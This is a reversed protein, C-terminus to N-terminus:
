HTAALPERVNGATQWISVIETTPVVPGYFVQFVRECATQEDATAAGTADSLLVSYYGEVFGHRATAEVCVNSAFGAYVCTRIGLSRLIVDLNTDQFGDYCPKVVVREDPEPPLLQDYFEAGWTGERVAIKEFEGFLALFNPLVTAESIVERLYIVPVGAARCTRIFANIRPVAAQMSSVDLGFRAIFGESSVFDNQVDVVLLATHAPDVVEALERM